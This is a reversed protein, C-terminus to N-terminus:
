RAGKIEKQWKEYQADFMPSAAGHRRITDVVQTGLYPDNRRVACRYLCRLTALTQLDTKALKYARNSYLLANDWDLKKEAFFARRWTLDFSDPNFRLGEEVLEISTDIHQFGRYLEYALTDYADVLTPDLYTIMRLLPVLEKQQFTDIGSDDQQEHMLDMHFWLLRALMTRGEGILDLLADQVRVMPKVPQMQEHAQRLPWSFAALGIWLALMLVRSKV